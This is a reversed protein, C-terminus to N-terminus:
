QAPKPAPAAPATDAAAKPAGVHIKGAPGGSPSKVTIPAGGPGGPMGLGMAPQPHQKQYDTMWKQEEAVLDTRKMQMYSGMLMQHVQQDDWAQKSAAQFQIVANADDKEQLYVQGLAMHLHADETNKLAATFYAIADKNQKLQGALQGILVNNATASSGKPDKALATKYDAMAAKMLNDRKTTDTEQVAQMLTHGGRVEPDSIALKVSPDNKLGQEFTQWAKSQESQTYQDTLTKKNKEFDKPLNDRIDDLKIIFYGFQPSKVLDPTVQGKQLTFAAKKFAEDYPTNNDIWGDDGGKDKTGPDQSYQKALAVFDAGPAKAKALVDQASKLAQEDSVKKNEILIHRTHFQRYSNRVDQETTPVQHNIKDHLKQLLVSQRLTDSDTRQTFTEGGNKSYAADIEAMTATKPLGLTKRLDYQTAIDERAKSVDADSATLGQKEAALLELKAQLLQDFAQAGLFGDQLVSSPQGMMTQQQRLGSIKEEYEARKIDLGNVTAIVDDGSSSTPAAGNRTNNGFGSFTTIVMAATVIGMVWPASRKFSERMTNLSM